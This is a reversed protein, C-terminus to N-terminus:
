KNGSLQNYSLNLVELCSLFSLDTPINGENLDSDTSFTYLAHFSNGSLRNKFLNLM